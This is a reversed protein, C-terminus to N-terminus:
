RTAPAIHAPTDQPTAMSVLRIRGPLIMSIVLLIALLALILTKIPDFPKAPPTDSGHRFIYTYTRSDKKNNM